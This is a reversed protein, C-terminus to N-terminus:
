TQIKVTESLLRSILILRVKDHETGGPACGAVTDLILKEGILLYCSKRILVIQGILDIQLTEVTCLDIAFEEFYRLKGRNEKKIRLTCLCVPGNAKKVAIVKKAFQAGM